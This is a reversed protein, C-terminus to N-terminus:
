TYASHMYAIRQLLYECAMAGMTQETLKVIWNEIFCCFSSTTTSVSLFRLELATIITIITKKKTNIFLLKHIANRQIKCQQM